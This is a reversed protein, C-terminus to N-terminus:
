FDYRLAFQLVRPASQSTTIQGFSGSNLNLDPIGFFNSNTLNYAEARFTLRHNEFWPLVFRKSVAMDLRFFGENRFANRQGVEGHRPNRLAAKVADPDAFYQIIAGENRINSKFLSRPGTLVPPTDNLLGLTFAGTTASAPLGSRATFIGSVTWNGLFVDLWKPMGKGIAKDRGLPIEWIGNVNFLHRIDFDADGRSANPNLIDYIVGDAVSNTVSSQNDIAHSWTYNVDFEFGKSFRKQLSVLMGDYQSRGLNTVFVNAAFQAGLGVNPNLLDNARLVYIIEATSGVEIQSPLITAVLETCNAGLGFQNCRAGYNALAAAGIQNELWPQPTVATGAALQAQVANLADFLFQGSAADKFNLLQVADAQAFLKRGRRGVYSVDLLFNGPLERQVGFSWQYSYPIEFNKDVAYNFELDVLGTPVGNTVFPTFPKTIVPPTTQVPLTTISVFRPDNLLATRPNLAGFIRSASNDLLYTSQDQIFTIAGGVRDYVMSAGGRLATKRDGFLFGLVGSKFSPNYAFGLRPAFNNYDTEYLPRGDNGKGILDYRLFPEVSNGSIGAANNAIRAAKLQEFELDNGTQFGNKEYPAPYLHWRVGLNLTLDSRVRWNDQVYFEYENYVYDRKKGTALPQVGGQRDFNYNTSLTALRGLIFAFAADYNARATATNRISAPRLSANLETTTGGLGLSIFNFDNVLTSKQRIPKFQGGFQVTHTGATWTVDDRLTPVIVDRDQFSINAFPATIVGGGGFINPYAPSRPVPFEWLQRSLGFAAQNTWNPSIVWTHGFAIQYSDDLLRESDGDGPFLELGNTQDNRTLTLRGFLRQNNNINGDIRTTFTNNSLTIPANFRYLGTNIGDGGSLDNPLPYRNNIFSLLAQNVGTGRPDLAAIQTPTLISICNPTTDLRSASTCGATNNIYALEGRRFHPLPVVRAEPDESDDRRGEYDFFFFLKDRGSKFVPGTDGFNLYPLPGSLSGGFQHRNLKPKAIGNRNNFFTNAATKDTRFYERLTGHFENSGSRTALQVQGGSSRGEGAGPNASVARFEQVSDIPLNGITVFAQGTAQDNSDIGDVTINGQDARSGTVSGVRNTAGTGVNDGIVGPQLGLLAAPNDRFQIPLERLQREGIVNGVSADTTNLTADGAVSTIEVTGTVPGLRLQVNQTETRGVGLRVSNLVLTQFGQGAFSLKYGDGPQVNLFVYVGQDNTTTTLERATKTDTLVVQVGPVVAGNEDTVVGTVGSVAQAACLTPSLLWLASLIFIFAVKPAQGFIKIRYKM